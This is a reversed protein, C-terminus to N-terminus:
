EASSQHAVVQLCQWECILYIFQGLQASIEEYSRWKFNSISYKQFEPISPYFPMNLIWCFLRLHLIKGMVHKRCNSTEMKVVIQDYLQTVIVYRGLTEVKDDLKIIFRKM